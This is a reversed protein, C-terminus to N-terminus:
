FVDTNQPSRVMIYVMNYAMKVTNCSSFFDGANLPSQPPAVRLYWGAQRNLEDSWTILMAGIIVILVLFLRFSKAWCFQQSLCLIFLFIFTSPFCFGLCDYMYKCFYLPGQVVIVDVYEYEYIFIFGYIYPIFICKHVQM